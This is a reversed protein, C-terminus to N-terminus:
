TQTVWTKIKV